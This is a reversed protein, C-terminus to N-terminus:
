QCQRNLTGGMKATPEFVSSRKELPVFARTQATATEGTGLMLYGGPAIASALRRFAASRKAEDFYLLVNRCLILDFSSRGPPESLLNHQQFQAYSQVNERIQWGGPAEDFHRLMQAVGLGRQVEFQSYLGQKAADVARQSIDTGLIEINWGSWAEKQDELMMALSYVEQGTSCGACWISLRKRHARHAKLAPLLDEPIQDFTPKDRFFYTENNLLAEVIDTALESSHTPSPTAALLLVLQDINTIGNQRFVGSLATGLRWKRSDVMAQGTRAEMLEAIIAYSAESVDQM